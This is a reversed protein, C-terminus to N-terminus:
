SRKILDFWNFDDNHFNLATIVDFKHPELARLLKPGDYWEVWPTRDGDTKKGWEAFPLSGERIWRERPYCLELWRGGLQLHEALRRREECMMEYPANILSGIATVCDFRGLRDVDALDRMVVFSVNRIGKIRCIREIIRLNTEVIDFFTVHAGCQAFYTGDYGLGSGVDLWQGGQKALPEYLDHYWGRTSYGEGTCNNDYWGQWLKLLEADPLNLLDGSFARGQTSAPVERWKERLTVLFESLSNPNSPM